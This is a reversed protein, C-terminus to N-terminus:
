CKLIDFMSEPEVIFSDCSVTAEDAPMFSKLVIDRRKEDDWARPFIIDGNPVYDGEEDCQVNIHCHYHTTIIFDIYTRGDEYNVGFAYGRGKLPYGHEKIAKEILLRDPIVFACPQNKEYTSYFTTDHWFNGVSFFYTYNMGWSWEYWSVGVFTLLRGECEAKDGFKCPIPIKM